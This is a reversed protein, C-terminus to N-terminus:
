NKLPDLTHSPKTSSNRGHQGEGTEQKSGSFLTNTFRIAWDSREDKSMANFDVGNFQGGFESMITNVIAHGFEHSLVHDAGVARSGGKTM